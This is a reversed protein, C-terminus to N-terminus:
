DASRIRTRKSDVTVIAGHALDDGYKDLAAICYEAQARAGIGVLRMIGSHPEGFVIAREGFDKDLTVLIRHQEHAIRLIEQDGPDREWAGCWVADHSVEALRRLAGGWVCSDLLLKM